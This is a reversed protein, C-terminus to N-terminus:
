PFKIHFVSLTKNKTQLLLWGMAMLLYVNRNDTGLINEEFLLKFNM